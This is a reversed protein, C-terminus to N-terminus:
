VMILKVSMTDFPLVRICIMVKITVEANNLSAQLRNTKDRSERAEEQARHLDSRLKCLTRQLAAEQLQFEKRLEVESRKWALLNETTLQQTRRMSELEREYFARSDDLKAEYEEELNEKEQKLEEILEELEILEEQDVCVSASQSQQHNEMLEQLEHHHISKLEDMARQKEQEIRAELQSFCRLKEEFDCRLEEAERQMSTVRQSHQEESSLRMEDVRRRYLEFEALAEHKLQDHLELSEELTHLRRKLEAEAGMRSRYHLIKERTESM